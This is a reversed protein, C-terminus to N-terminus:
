RAEYYEQIDKNMDDTLGLYFFRNFNIDANYTDGYKVLSAKYLVLGTKYDVESMGSRDPSTAVSLADVCNNIIGNLTQLSERNAHDYIKDMSGGNKFMNSHVEKNVSRSYDGMLNVRMEPHIAADTLISNITQYNKNSM